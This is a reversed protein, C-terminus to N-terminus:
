AYYFSATKVAEKYSTSSNCSKLNEELKSDCKGDFYDKMFKDFDEKTCDKKGYEIHFLIHIDKNLCIGIPYKKHLESVKEKILVIEEGTYETKIEINLECLADRIISDLQYQHHVETNGKIGTLICKNKCVKRSYKRWWSLASRVTRNLKKINNEERCYICPFKTKKISSYTTQQTHGPHKRCEFEIHTDKNIYEDNLVNLGRKNFYGFVTKKDLRNINALNERRCYECHKTYKLNAYARYQVGDNIHKPCLYPLPQSNGEYDEPKFKPILGCKIFEDYIKQGDLKRKLSIEEFGGYCCCSKSAKVNDYNSEQIGKDQHNLCIFKLRSKKNKYDEETSILNLNKDEFYKKVIDFRTRYRESNRERNKFIQNKHEYGFNIMNAEKTKLGRCDGNYCCDKNVTVRGKLYQRYPAEFEIGCYDCKVKVKVISGEQLDEIRCKFLDGQKTYIYGREIYHSAVRGNWRVMIEKSLLM